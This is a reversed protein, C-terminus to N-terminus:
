HYESPLHSTSHTLSPEVRTGLAKVPIAPLSPESPVQAMPGGHPKELMTVELSDSKKCHHAGGSHAVGVSGPLAGRCEQGLGYTM